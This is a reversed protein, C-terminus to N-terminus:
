AYHWPIAVDGDDNLRRPTEVGCVLLGPAVRGEPLAKRFTTAPRMDFGSPNSTLKIELPFLQGNYELLLDVEAGGHTRWHHIAPAAALSSCQKRVENVMATEFLAGLLPHSALASPSAISQAACALGTDFFYGKSKSAVRKVLNSHFAPIEIWQFTAGLIALWEKATNRALGIERGLHTYNIEQATLAALLRHFRGFTQADSVNAFSRADREVYTRLYSNHFDRLVEFPLHVAEPLSGRFLYEILAVPPSGTKSDFQFGTPNNLWREVWGGTAPVNKLWEQMSFGDLEIIVARGALSETLNRMVQWQQSGTLLFLGPKRDRDVRRKIAAVIEPAYQIEDLILPSKHNQLFLDPDQRAQEVDLAPDFVVYDSEPYLHRLLTTKGVQRAGVVVVVPFHDFLLRIRSEIQRRIYKM